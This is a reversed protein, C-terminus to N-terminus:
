VSTKSSMFSTLSGVTQMWEQQYLLDEDSIVVNFSEEMVVLLEIFALSDLGLDTELSDTTKISDPTKSVLSLKSLLEKVKLEVQEMRAGAKNKTHVTL